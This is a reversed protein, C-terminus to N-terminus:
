SLVQLLTMSIQMRVNRAFSESELLGLINEPTALFIFHAIKHLCKDASPLHVCMMVPKIISIM